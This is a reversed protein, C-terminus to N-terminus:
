RDPPPDCPSCARFSAARAAPAGVVGGERSRLLPRRGASRRRGPWPAGPEDPRTTLRQGWRAERSLPRCIWVLPLAGCRRARPNELPPRTAPISHSRSGFARQAGVGALAPPSAVATTGARSVHRVGPDPAPHLLGAVQTHAYVTSATRFRSPPVPPPAPQGEGFPGALPRPTSGRLPVISPRRHVGRASGPIVPGRSDPAEFPLM